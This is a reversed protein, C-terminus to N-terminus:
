RPLVNDAGCPAPSPTTKSWSVRAKLAPISGPLASVLGASALSLAVAIAFLSAAGMWDIVFGSAAFGIVGAVWTVTHVWPLSRGLAAPPLIDTALASALSASISRAILTTAAVLWFHWLYGGSLALTLGGLAALLYGLLIFLKRGLHDSLKGFWLVIPITVLGGIVNAGSIAGASYDLEKMALSLGLRSVSISMASLLLSLLLFHFARNPKAAPAGASRSVTGTQVAPEHLFLMAVVPWIAYEVAMGAFMLPYGKWEVLQGVALSGLIAGLPNTLAIWSFSKGREAKSANLGTLVDINALGIGGTFWVHGTLFIVQWLATAQGLLALALAGSFGALVLTLRRSVRGSLWGALMSGLTISIYTLALYIGITTPTAGFHGAYIPLLPFLGFGVCLISFSSIFLYLMQRNMNMEKREEDPRALIPMLKRTDM